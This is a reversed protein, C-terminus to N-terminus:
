CIPTVFLCIAGNLTCCVLLKVMNVSNTISWTSTQNRLDCPTEIFVETADIIAYTDPFKDKFARPLNRRVQEETVFIVPPLCFLDLHYLIEISYVNCNWILICYREWSCNLSTQDIYSFISEPSWTQGKREWPVRKVHWSTSLWASYNMHTFDQICICLPTMMPHTGFRFDKKNQASVQITLQRNGLNLPRLGTWYLQILLLM